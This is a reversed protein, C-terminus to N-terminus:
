NGGGQLFFTGMVGLLDRVKDSVCCRGRVIYYKRFNSLKFQPWTIRTICLKRFGCSTISWTISDCLQKTLLQHWFRGRIFYKVITQCFMNNRSKSSHKLHEWPCSTKVETKATSCFINQYWLNPYNLIHNQRQPGFDKTLPLPAEQAGYFQVSDM